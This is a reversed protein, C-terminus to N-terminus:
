FTLRMTLQLQRPAWRSSGDIGGPSISQEGSSTNPNNYGQINFANFADVNVRFDMKERIPFVKFASLDAVYNFPGHLVTKNFPNNGAYTQNPGPAFAVSWPKGGNLNPGTMLVNNGGFYAAQTPDNNIPTQYPQYDAPLGTVCNTTCIGGNGPPLFKPSIYGNFWMNRNYCKGSSCDQIPVSDKYTVLKSTPGWNGANISFAQSVVQGVGAIQWGGVLEDVFRNAHGLLWKGRGVPLDYIANITVHHFPNAYYPEV